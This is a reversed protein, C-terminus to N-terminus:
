SAAPAEQSQSPEPIVALIAESVGCATKLLNMQDCIEEYERPNVMYGLELLVSPAYTMRTVYYYSEEPDTAQRGLMGPLRDMLQQAFALSIDEHYYVEMRRTNNLDRTLGASNHHISLFIDPKMQESIICREDLSVRSDDTRTLAVTAGMQELRYKVAYVAALNVQSEVPGTSGAVGLAGPDSGGHGADLLVTVGELPRGPTQSRVPARRLYLRTTGAQTDYELNYGWLSGDAALPLTLRVGGPIEELSGEGTLSTATAAMDASFDTNLFDLVLSDERRATVVAPTGGEFVLYEGKEAEERRIGTIRADPTDTGELIRVKEALIWGGNELQYAITPSGSRTTEMWDTIYARAGAKLTGTITDDNDGDSLVSAIYATVELSLQVNKGAVYVEGESQYTTTKGGYTLQYTVRGISTTENAPYQDPNLTVSGQFTAPVGDQATAAVQRLPVTMGGVTATISGGAPGVCSLELTENSDVGLGYRPFLTSATIGSITAAGTSPSRRTITVQSQADGQRFTFTNAGLALDAQVGFAGGQSIREVPQGNLSLEVDPDSTGMLFISSDTTTIDSAPYTVALTRPITLTLDPLPSAAQSFFSVLMETEGPDEALHSYSELVAGAVSPYLSNVLLQYDTQRPDGTEQGSPSLTNVTYLRTEKGASAAAIWQELIEGYPTEADDVAAGIRPLAMQLTGDGALSALLQPTVPGNEAMGDFILGLSVGSATKEMERRTQRLLDELDEQQVDLGSVDVLVGALGYGRILESLTDQAKESDTGVGAAGGDVVAFVQTKRDAAEQILSELPDFRALLGDSATVDEAIPHLKSRYWAEGEGDLAEFFLANFGNEQAFAAMRALEEKQAEPELGPQSPYDGEPGTPVFFGRASGLYRYASLINEEPQDQPLSGYWSWLGLGAIAAICLVLLVQLFRRM